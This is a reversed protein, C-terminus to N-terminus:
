MSYLEIHTQNGMILCNGTQSRGEGSTLFPVVLPSFPANVLSGLGRTMWRQIFKWPSEIVIGGAYVYENVVSGATLVNIQLCLEVLLVGYCYSLIEVENKMEDERTGQRDSQKALCAEM